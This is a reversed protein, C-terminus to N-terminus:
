VEEPIWAEMALSAAGLAGARDGLSSPKVKLSGAAIAPCIREATETIEDCFDPGLATLPGHLLYVEADLLVHLCAVLRGFDEVVEAERAPHVAKLDAFAARLDGPLPTDDQLGALRRYIVPASLFDHVESSPGGATMPWPWRGIEGAAWHKGRVLDGGSVMAIGFGSRPGLIVYDQLDRDEGYWREALAIARLNNEVTVPVKFAQSLHDGLMVNRWGPIFAYHLAVGRQPEVLGPAGVGIGMLPATGDVQQALSKLLETLASVVVDAKAGPPLNAMESRLVTGGFDVAVAQAREANFELGLFWGADRKVTLLRKPRGMGGRQLGSEHLLGRAILDDVYMGATTASLRALTSLSRRSNARESRVLLVVRAAIQAQESSSRM